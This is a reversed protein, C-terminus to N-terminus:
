YKSIENMLHLNVYVVSIWFSCMKLQSCITWFATGFILTIVKFIPIVTLHKCIIQCRDKYTVYTAYTWIVAVFLWLALLVPYLIALSDYPGESMSLLFYGKPIFVSCGQLPLQECDIPQTPQCAHQVQQCHLRCVDLYAYGSGSVPCYPFVSLCSYITMFDKCYQNSTGAVTFLSQYKQKAYNNLTTLNLPSPLNYPNFNRALYASATYHDPTLIGGCFLGANSIIQTRACSFVLGNLTM